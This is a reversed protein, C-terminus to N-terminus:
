NAKERLMLNNYNIMKKKYPLILVQFGIVKIFNKILSIFLEKVMDNVWIIFDKLNLEMQFYFYVKEMCKLNLGIVKMYRVMQGLINELVKFKIIKFVVLINIEMRLNLKERVM